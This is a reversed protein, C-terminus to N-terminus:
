RLHGAQQREQASGPGPSEVLFQKVILEKKQNAGQNRRLSTCDRAMDHRNRNRLARTMQWPRPLRFSSLRMLRDLRPMANATIVSIHATLMALPSSSRVLVSGM